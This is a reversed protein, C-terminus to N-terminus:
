MEDMLNADRRAFLHPVGALLGLLLIALLIGSTGAGSSTGITLLRGLSLLQALGVSVLLAWWAWKEGRRYPFFVVLAALMACGFAWTAATARRGKFAAVAGAGGAQRIEELGVSVTAPGNTGAYLTDQDAFYATALSGLSFLALAASLVLLLVWSVVFLMKAGKM